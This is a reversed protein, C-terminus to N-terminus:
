YPEYFNLFEPRLSGVFIFYDHIEDSILRVYLLLGGVVKGHKRFAYIHIDLM